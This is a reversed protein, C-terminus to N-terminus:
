LHLNLFHLLHTKLFIVRVTRNLWLPNTVLLFYDITFVVLLSVLGACRGGM